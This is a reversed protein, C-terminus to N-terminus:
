RKKVSEIRNLQDYTGEESALATWNENKWYGVLTYFEDEVIDYRNQYGVVYVNNNIVKIDTLTVGTYGAEPSILTFESNKYYGSGESTSGLLYRDGNKFYIKKPDFGQDIGIEEIVGDRFVVNRYAYTTDGCSLSSNDSRQCEGIAVVEGVSNIAADTIDCGRTYTNPCSAVAPDPYSTWSDDDCTGLACSSHETNWYGPRSWSGNSRYGVAWLENDKEILRAVTGTNNGASDTDDLHILSSGEWLASSNSSAPTGNESAIGSLFFGGSNVYIDSLQNTFAELELNVKTENVWYFLGGSDEAAIHLNNDYVYSGKVVGFGTATEVSEFNSNESTWFGLERTSGVERRGIFHLIVPEVEVVFTKEFEQGELQITATLTVSTKEDSEVFFKGSEYRLVGSDSQWSIPLGSSTIEPVEFDNVLSQLSDGESFFFDDVTVGDLLSSEEKSNSGCSIFFLAFVITILNIIKM